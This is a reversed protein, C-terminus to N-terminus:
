RPLGGGSAGAGTAGPREGLGVDTIRDARNGALLGDAPGQYDLRTLGVLQRRHRAINDPPSRRALNPGGIVLGVPGTPIKSKM